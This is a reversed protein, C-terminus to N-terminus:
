GEETPGTCPLDKSLIITPLTEIFGYCIGGWVAMKINFPQPLFPCFFLLSLVLACLPLPPPQSFIYIFAMPLPSRHLPYFALSSQWHNWSPKPPLLSSLPSVASSIFILVQVNKRTIQWTAAMFVNLILGQNHNTLDSLPVLHLYSLSPFSPLPFFVLSVLPVFALGCPVISMTLTCLCRIPSHHHNNNHCNGYTAVTVISPPGPSRTTTITSKTNITQSRISLFFLLALYFPPFSPLALTTLYPPEDIITTAHYTFNLAM